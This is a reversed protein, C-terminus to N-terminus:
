QSLSILRKAAAAIDDNSAASGESKNVLSQLQEWAFRRRLDRSVCFFLLPCVYTCTVCIIYILM